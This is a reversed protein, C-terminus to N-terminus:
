SNIILTSVKGQAYNDFERYSILAYSKSDIYEIKLIEVIQNGVQAYNNSLLNVFDQDSLRVRANEKIRYNNLFIQNIYHYNDWLYSARIYNKYDQPQKGDNLTYLMKTVSFFQQSIQLVGIRNTILSAISSNGGFVNAVLDINMLVEAAASEIFNLKDKRKGLAFNINVDNLGKISVLDQNVVNVPETSYEADTSDFDDTTHTDSFDVQYHIYYRKWIDQTNYKYVEDRDSQINLAPNIINQSLNQWFDRRELYVVGDYVRTKANFMIEISRILSGLTAVTDQATPYGKNFDNTLDDSLNEYWKKTKTMLPVPVITFNEIDNLLQSQVNYGLFSCGKEILEKVTCGKLYRVKPFLLALLDQGLKIVAVVVAAFYIIRATIKLAMNIIDGTQITPGTAGVDPVTASIIETASQVIQDAAYILEKTLIFTSLALNFFLEGQNDQIIVYPISRLNFNAGSKNLWEFSSGDARDFFSDKANRRKIKVEIEHHRYLTEETLDVYYQLNVGSNMIVEYPIGEFVGLTNVHNEIINYAERPLVLKDVNLELENPIDGFNSVVGIDNINRPAIEVGNLLHKM